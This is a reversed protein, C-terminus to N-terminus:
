QTIRTALLVFSLNTPSKKKCEKWCNEVSDELVLSDTNLTVNSEISNAVSEGGSSISPIDRWAHLPTSTEMIKLRKRAGQLQDTPEEFELNLLVRKPRISHQKFQSIPIDHGIHIVNLDKEFM